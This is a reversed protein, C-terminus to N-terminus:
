LPVSIQVCQYLNWRGTSWQGHLFERSARHPDKSYGVYDLETNLNKNYDGIILQNKSENEALHNNIKDTEDNPNFVFAIELEQKSASKLQVALCNSTIPKYSVLKFPCSKMLLVILGKTLSTILIPDHFDQFVQKNNKVLVDM